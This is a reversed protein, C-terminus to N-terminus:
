YYIDCYNWKWNVFNFFEMLFIMTAIFVVLIFLLQVICYIFYCPFYFNFTMNIIVIHRISKTSFSWNANDLLNKKLFILCLVSAFYLFCEFLEESSVLCWPMERFGFNWAKLEPDWVDVLYVIIAFVFILHNNYKRSISPKFKLKSTSYIFKKIYFISIFHSSRLVNVKYWKHYEIM